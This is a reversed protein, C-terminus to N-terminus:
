GYNKFEVMDNLGDVPSKEIGATINCPQRVGSVNRIRYVVSVDSILVRVDPASSNLNAADALQFRYTCNYSERVFDARLVLKDVEDILPKPINRSFTSKFVNDQIHTIRQNVTQNFEDRSRQELSIIIIFSILFAFGLESLIAIGTTAKHFVSEGAPITLSIEWIASLGICVVALLLIALYRLLRPGRDSTPIVETSVQTESRSLELGAGHAHKTPLAWEM